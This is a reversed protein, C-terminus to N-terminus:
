FFMEDLFDEFEDERKKEEEIEVPNEWVQHSISSSAATSTREDIFDKKIESCSTLRESQESSRSSEQKIKSMKPKKVYKSRRSNGLCTKQLNEHM